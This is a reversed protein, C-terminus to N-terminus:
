LACSEPDLSGAITAAPSISTIECLLLKEERGRELCCCKFLVKFFM